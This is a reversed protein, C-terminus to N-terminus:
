YSHHAIQVCASFLHLYVWKYMNFNKFHIEIDKWNPTADKVKNDICEQALRYKIIKQELLNSIIQDLFKRSM